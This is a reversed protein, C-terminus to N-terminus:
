TGSIDAAWGSDWYWLPRLEYGGLRKSIPMTTSPSFLVIWSQDEVIQRQATNFETARAAPDSEGGAKSLAAAVVPNNYKTYDTLNSELFCQVLTGGPDPYDSSWELLFGDYNHAKDAIKALLQNYPINQLKLNLGISKAAAQVIVGEEQEHPTAVLLTATAGEAGAEKVLAKAKGLDLHFDPLADYGAQLTKQEFSWMSPTSPSKVLTGAGGWTADLVGQKDIAYSLAQRVRLDTFPKRTVNLGVFHVFFSPATAVVMNSARRLGKLNKGSLNFAGDVGGSVMGEVVTTESAIVKFVVQAVKPQRATNWYHDNKAITAQQGQQWSVFSYPGTGIIGVGPKGVNKGHSDLFAKPAVGGVTTAPVYHWLADPKSLKVTLEYAGTATVAKVNAVFSALYSGVAPDIIRKMSAAADSATMESGDHFKVGKRLTYVYTVEDAKRWSSALNPQLEGTPSMRLLSEVINTVVPNTNFDYAFAYDIAVPDAFLAWTMTPVAKGAGAPFSASTVAGSAGTTPTKKTGSGCAALLQSLALASVGTAAGSLVQRRSLSRSSFRLDDNM